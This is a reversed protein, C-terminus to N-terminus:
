THREGTKGTRLLELIRSFPLSLAAFGDVAVVIQGARVLGSREAEGQAGSPLSRFGVVTCGLSADGLTTRPAVDIGMPCGLEITVNAEAPRLLRARALRSALPTTPFDVSSTRRHLTRALPSHQAQQLKPRPRHQQSPPLPPPQEQQQQLQLQQGGLDAQLGESDRLTSRRRMLLADPADEASGNDNSESADGSEEFFFAQM